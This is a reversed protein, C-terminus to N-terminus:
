KEGKDPVFDISNKVLNSIVQGIRKPDCVVALKESSIAIKAKFEIQKDDMLPQLESINEKVLESGDVKKKNLRLKGIDLKYVDM